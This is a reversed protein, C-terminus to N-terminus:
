FPRRVSFHRFKQINFHTKFAQFALSDEGKESFDMSFGLQSLLRVDAKNRIQWM